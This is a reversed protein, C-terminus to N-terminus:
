VFAPSGIVVKWIIVGQTVDPPIFLGKNRLEQLIPISLTILTIGMYRRVVQESQPSGPVYVLTDHFTIFIAQDDTVYLCSCMHFTKNIPYVM